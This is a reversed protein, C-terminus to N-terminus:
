SQTGINQTNLAYYGTPVDYEFVSGNGNSGASSVASAGFYGNGFNYSVTFTASGSADGIAPTWFGQGSTQGSFDIGSGSSVLTGNKYFYIKYNDVDFAVGIIDNVVSAAVTESTSTGVTIGGDWYQYATSYGNTGGLYNGYSDPEMTNGIGVTAYPTGASSATVKAEYYYKGSTVALTSVVCRRTSSGYACTTNGNSLTADTLVALPNFTAYVNSPTDKTQIITGNTTFNNSNASDLGMNASNDMKLFYGNAGYTVSPATKPVWIGTSADTEGFSTPGYSTGEVFNIHALVGNVTRIASSQAPQTNTTFSTEQEGNVYLRVRDDASGQTTDVRYVVHYWASPDRFKRTTQKNVLQNGSGDYMLVAFTRDNSVRFYTRLNNNSADRSAFIFNENNSTVDSLKLWYSWTAKTNTSSSSFARSLHASAM